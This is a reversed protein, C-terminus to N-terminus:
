SVHLDRIALYLLPVYIYTVVNTKNCMDEKTCKALLETQCNLLKDNIPHAVSCNMLIFVKTPSGGISIDVPFM